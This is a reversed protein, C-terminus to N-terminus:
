GKRIRMIPEVFNHFFLYLYTPLRATKLLPITAKPVDSFPFGLLVYTHIVQQLVLDVAAGLLRNTKRMTPSVRTDTAGGAPWSM